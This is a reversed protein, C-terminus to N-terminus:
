PVGAMTNMMDAVAKQNAANAKDKKKDAPARSKADGEDAADPLLRWQIFSGLAVLGLFAWLALRQIKNMSDELRLAIGGCDLEM